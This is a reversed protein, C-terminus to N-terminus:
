PSQLRRREVSQRRVVTLRGRWVGLDEGIQLLGTSLSIFFNVKSDRLLSFFIKLFGQISRRVVMERLSDFRVVNPGSRACPPVLFHLIRAYIFCLTSSQSMVPFVQRMCEELVDSERCKLHCKLHLHRSYTSLHM